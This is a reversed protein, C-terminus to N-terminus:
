LRQWLYENMNQLRILKWQSGWREVDAWLGPLKEVTSQEFNEILTQQFHKM